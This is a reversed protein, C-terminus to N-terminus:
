KQGERELRVADNETRRLHVGSDGPKEAMALACRARMELLDIRTMRIRLLM